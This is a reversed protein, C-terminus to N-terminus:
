RAVSYMFSSPYAQTSIKNPSMIYSSDLLLILARPYFSEMSYYLQFIILNNICHMLANKVTTLHKSLYM